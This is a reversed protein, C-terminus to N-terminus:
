NLILVSYTLYSAFTVWSLYPILLIAAIRHIPWALVILAIISIKLLFAELLALGINHLGFFIFPWLLNLAANAIFVYTLIKRRDKLKGRLKLTWVLIASIAAFIYIITWTLSYTNGSVISPPLNLNSYWSLNAETIFGGGIAVLFTVAVIVLYKHM